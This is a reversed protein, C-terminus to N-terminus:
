VSKATTRIAGVELAFATFVADYPVSGKAVRRLAADGLDFVVSVAVVAHAMVPDAVRARSSAIRVARAWEPPPAEESLELHRAWLAVRAGLAPGAPQDAHWRAAHALAFAPLRLPAKALRRRGAETASLAFVAHKEGDDLLREHLRAAHLCGRLLSEPTVGGGGGDAGGRM